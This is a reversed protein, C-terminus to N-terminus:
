GKVVGVVIGKVFYRQLFPYILLVPIMAAVLKAANLTKDTIKMM